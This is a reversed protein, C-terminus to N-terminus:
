ILQGLLQKMELDYLINPRKMADENAQELRLLQRYQDPYKNEIFQRFKDNTDM